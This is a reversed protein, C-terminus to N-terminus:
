SMCKNNDLFFKREKKHSFITVGSYMTKTGRRPHSKEQRQSDGCAVTQEECIMSIHQNPRVPVPARGM